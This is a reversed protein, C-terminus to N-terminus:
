KTIYKEIVVDQQPLIVHKIVKAVYYKRGPYEKALKKAIETAGFEDPSGGGVFSEPVLVAYFQQPQHKQETDCM